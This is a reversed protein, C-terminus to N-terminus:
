QQLREDPGVLAVAEVQEVARYRRQPVLWEFMASVKRPLAPRGARPPEPDIGVTPGALRAPGAPAARSAAGVGPVSEAAVGERSGGLRKGLRWRM